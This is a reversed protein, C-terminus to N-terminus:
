VFFETSFMENSDVHEEMQNEYKRTKKQTEFLIHQISLVSDLIIFETPGSLRRRKDGASRPHVNSFM